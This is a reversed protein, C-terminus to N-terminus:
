AIPLSEKRMPTHYSLSTLPFFSDKVPVMFGQIQARMSYAGMRDVLIKLLSGERSYPGGGMEGNQSCPILPFSLIYLKVRM